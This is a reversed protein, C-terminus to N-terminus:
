GFFLMLLEWRFLHLVASIILDWCKRIRKCPAFDTLTSIAVYMLGKIKGVKRRMNLM